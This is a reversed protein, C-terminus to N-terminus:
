KISMHRTVHGSLYWDCHRVVLLVKIASFILFSKPVIYVRGGGGLGTDRLYAYVCVGLRELDFIYLGGVCVCSPVHVLVLSARWWFM